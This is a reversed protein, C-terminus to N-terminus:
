CWTCGLVTTHETKPTCNNRNGSIGTTNRQLRLQQINCLIRIPIPKLRSSRLLNITINAQFILRNWEKVPFNTDCIYLGTILHIKFTRIAREAANLRHVHPPFLQYKVESTDYAQKIYYSCENDLIHISYAEGHKKLIEFTTQWVKIIEEMNRSKIPVADITNTDYHYMVFIYQNCQTSKIPFKDTQDSLSKSALENSDFIACLIDHAKVNNPNQTPVIDEDVKTFQLKKRKSIFTM